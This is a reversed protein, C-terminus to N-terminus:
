SIYCSDFIGAPTAYPCPSDPNTWKLQTEWVVISKDDDAVPNKPTITVPAGTFHIKSSTRYGAEWSSSQRKGNYFDCNEAYNPDKFILTHVTSGNITASDGYGVLESTAGGDYSGQTSWLVIVDGSNIASTWEVPNTPDTFTYSTKKFFISRIRGYELTPCPNCNYAYDAGGDCSDSPYYVSM